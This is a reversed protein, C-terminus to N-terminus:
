RQYKGPPLTGPDVECQRARLDASKNYKPRDRSGPVPELSRNADEMKITMKILINPHRGLLSNNQFGAGTYQLSLSLQLSMRQM